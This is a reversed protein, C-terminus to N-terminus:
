ELHQYFEEPQLEKFKGDQRIIHRRIDLCLHCKSIYGEKQEKYGFEHVAFEFFIEVDSVLLKLIPKQELDMERMSNLDKADGLSIGGCYGTIYNGYNDIHIHWPRTLEELCSQGFFRRAPYKRFLYGLKYVARGMPILEVNNLSGYGAKRLYEELSIKGEIGMHEFQQNFFDQYVMVNKGFVERSIKVNRKIREFPIKETFFPNVSILIGKLGAKKLEILRERTVEDDRCWFSNTEVFTSPIKLGNAIATLELLLDFNLFPEGGTFHLGYNLSAREPGFPSEQIKGALQDLIKKGDKKSMWDGRWAPSCAYMCHQCEINCQYSLILGGSIPEPVLLKNM